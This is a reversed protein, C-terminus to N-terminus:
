EQNMNLKPVNKKSVYNFKIRLFLIEQKKHLHKKAFMFKKTHLM